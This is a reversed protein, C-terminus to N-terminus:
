SSFTASNDAHQAIINAVLLWDGGDCYCEIMSGVRISNTGSGGKALTLITDTGAAITTEVNAGNLLHTVTGQFTATGDTNLVVNGTCDINTIIKFYAGEQAAPLTIAGPSAVTIVYLEGTEAPQITKAAAGITEVRQRSAVRASRAVRSM